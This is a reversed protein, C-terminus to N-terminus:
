LRYILHSEVFPQIWQLPFVVHFARDLERNIYVLGLYRERELVRCTSSSIYVAWDFAMGERRGAEEVGERVGVWGEFATEEEHTWGVSSEDLVCPTEVLELHMFEAFVVVRLDADV